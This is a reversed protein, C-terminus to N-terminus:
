RFALQVANWATASDFFSSTASPYTSSASRSAHVSFGPPLYKKVRFMLVRTAKATPPLAAGTRGGEWRGDGGELRRLETPPTSASIQAGPM